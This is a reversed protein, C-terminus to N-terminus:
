YLIGLSNFLSAVTDASDKHKLLNRTMMETKKIHSPLRCPKIILDHLEKRKQQNDEQIESQPQLLTIHPVHM